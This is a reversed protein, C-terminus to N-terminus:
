GKNWRRRLWVLGPLGLLLLLASGPEPVPRLNFSELGILDGGPGPNIMCPYTGGGQAEFVNSEGFGGTDLPVKCTLSGFTRNPPTFIPM